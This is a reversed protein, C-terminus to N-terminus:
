KQINRSMQQRTLQQYLAEAIGNQSNKSMTKSYEDDLMSTFIEEAQGGYFLETKDITKRMAKLMNSYLLSEFESCQERLRRDNLQKQVDAPLKGQSVANGTRTFHPDLAAGTINYAADM